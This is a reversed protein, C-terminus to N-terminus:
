GCTRDVARVSTVVIQQSPASPHAGGPPPEARAGTSPSSAPASDREITGAIAVRQGVYQALAADDGKLRYSPPSATSTRLSGTTGITGSGSGSPLSGPVASGAVPRAEQTNPGVVILFPSSGDFPEYRAVCGTFTIPSPAEARERARGDANAASPSPNDRANVNPAPATSRATVPVTCREDLTRASRVSLLSLESVTAARDTAAQSPDADDRRPVAADSPEHAAAGDPTIGADGPPTTTATLRKPSGPPLAATADRELVGRIEVRRGVSKALAAEERGSLIYVDRDDGAGTAGRDVIVVLQQIPEDASNRALGRSAAYDREAVVCGTVTITSPETQQARVTTLQQVAAAAYSAGIVGIAGRWFRSTRSLSM